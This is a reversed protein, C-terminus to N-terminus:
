KMNEDIVSAAKIYDSTICLVVYKGKEALVANNVKDAEAPLYDEFASKLDSLHANVAEATEKAQASDKCTFIALEDASSGSGIYLEVQVGEPLTFMTQAVSEEALALTSDFQVNEQVAASFAATDLTLEKQVCASLMTGALVAACFAALGRKMKKMITEKRNGISKRPSKGLLDM